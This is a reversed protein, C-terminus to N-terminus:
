PAPTSASSAPSSGSSDNLRTLAAEARQEIEGSALKAAILDQARDVLRWTTELIRTLNDRAQRSPSFSVLEDLLAKTAQEIADGAMARGFDEDTVKKEDAEPKCAAYVVDCLLVPDAILRELLDGGLVELLDVGALARVRKITNVNVTVTWPRGANDTFVKM